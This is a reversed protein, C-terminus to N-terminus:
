CLFTLVNHFHHQTCFATMPHTSFKMSKWVNKTSFFPKLWRKRRPFSAYLTKRVCFNEEDINHYVILPLTKRKNEERSGFCSNWFHLLLIFFLRFHCQFSPSNGVCLFYGPIRNRKMYCVHDWCQFLPVFSHPIFPNCNWVNEYEDCIELSLLCLLTHYSFVAIKYMKWIWLLNWVQSWLVGQLNSLMAWKGLCLITVVAQNSKRWEIHDFTVCDWGLKIVIKHPFPAVIKQSLSSIPYM